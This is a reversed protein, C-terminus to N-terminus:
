WTKDWMDRLKLTISFKWHESEEEKVDEEDVATRKM